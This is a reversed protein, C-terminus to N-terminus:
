CVEREVGKRGFGWVAKGVKVGPPGGDLGKEGEELSGSRELGPRGPLGRLRHAAGLGGRPRQSSGPASADLRPPGLQETQCEPSTSLLIVHRPKHNPSPLHLPSPRFIVTKKDFISPM